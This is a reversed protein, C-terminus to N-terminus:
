IDLPNETNLDKFRSFDRDITWLKSVSNSLCIIAIKADHIIPGTTKAKSSIKNLYKYSGEEEHILQLTKSKKWKNLAKLADDITSPPSYIKKHTVINIFEYVCPWPISWIQGSAELELLAKLAPKHFPSEGRHAYVLLQTDIAIM